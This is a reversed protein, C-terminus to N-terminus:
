RYRHDIEPLVHRDGMHLSMDMADLRGAVLIEEIIMEGQLIAGAYQHGRDQGGVKRNEGLEPAERDAATDQLAVEPGRLGTQPSM